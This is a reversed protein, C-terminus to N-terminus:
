MCAPMQGEAQWYYAHKAYRNYCMKAEEWSDFLMDPYPKQVPTLSPTSHIGESFAKDHLTV